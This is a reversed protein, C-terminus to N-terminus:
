EVVLQFCGYCSVSCGATYFLSFFYSSNRACQQKKDLAELHPSYQGRQGKGIWVLVFFGNRLFAVDVPCETPAINFFLASSRCKWMLLNVCRVVSICSTDMWVYPSLEQICLKQWEEIDV